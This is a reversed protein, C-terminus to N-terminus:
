CRRKKGVVNATGATCLPGSYAPICSSGSARESMQKCRESAGGQERQERARSRESTRESGGPFTYLQIAIEETNKATKSWLATNCWDMPMAANPM